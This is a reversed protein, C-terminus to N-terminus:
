HKMAEGATMMTMARRWDTLHDLLVLNAARGVLGSPDADAVGRFIDPWFEAENFGPIDGEARLGGFMVAILAREIEVLVTTEGPLASVKNPAPFLRNSLGDLRRRADVWFVTLPNLGNPELSARIHLASAFMGVAAIEQFKRKEDPTLKRVLEEGTIEDNVGDYIMAQSSIRKLAMPYNRAAAAMASRRPIIDTM